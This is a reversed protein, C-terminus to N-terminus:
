FWGEDVGQALAGGFETEILAADGRGVGNGLGRGAELLPEALASM